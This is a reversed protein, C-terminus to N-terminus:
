PYRVPRASSGPQNNASFTRALYRAKGPDGAANLAFPGGYGVYDIDTGRRVWRLCQELTSCPMGVDTVAPLAARIGEPTIEGLLRASQEAALIAIAAADYAQPSYATKSAQPALAKVRSALGRPVRLDVEVTVAGDLTGRRLQGADVSDAALPSLLVTAPMGRVILERLIDTTEAGSALLMADASARVIRGVTGRTSDSKGYIVSSTELGIDRARDLAADILAQQDRPGVVVIRVAGRDKAVTALMAGALPEAPVVRALVGTLLGSTTAPSILTRGQVAPLNDLVLTSSLPGIIAQADSLRTMTRAFIGSGQGGSNGPALTIPSGLVGGAANADDVALRVAAQTAPGYAKLSGTDPLATGLTLATVKRPAATVQAPQAAAVPMVLATALAGAALVAYRRM